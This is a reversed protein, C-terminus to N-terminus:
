LRKGCKDYSKMFYENKLHEYYKNDNMFHEYYTNDNKVTGFKIKSQKM